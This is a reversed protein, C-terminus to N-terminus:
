CLTRMTHTCLRRLVSKVAHMCIRASRPAGQRAPARLVCLPQALVACDAARVRHHHPLSAPPHLVCPPRSRPAGAASPPCLPPSCQLPWACRLPGGLLRCPLAARQGACDVWAGWGRRVVCARVCLSMARRLACRASSPSRMVLRCALMKAPLSRSSWNRTSMFQFWSSSSCHDTVCCCLSSSLWASSSYLHARAPTTRRLKTPAPATRRASLARQAPSPRSPGPGVGAAPRGCCAIKM